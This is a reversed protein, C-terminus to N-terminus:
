TAEANEAPVPEKNNVIQISFDKDSLQKFSILGIKHWYKFARIVDSELLNLASAIDSMDFGNDAHRLMYLYVKVFSGNAECLYEDVFRKQIMFCDTKSQIQIM